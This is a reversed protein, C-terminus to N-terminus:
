KKDKSVLRIISVIFAIGVLTYVWPTLMSGFIFGVLNFGTGLLMTVGLIGWNLAGILILTIAVWDYWQMKAM